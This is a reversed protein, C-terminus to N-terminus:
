RRVERLSEAIASISSRDVVVMLRFQIVAGIILLGRGGVPVVVLVSAVLM